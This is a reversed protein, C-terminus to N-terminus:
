ANGNAIKEERLKREDRSESAPDFYANIYKPYERKEGFVTTRIGRRNGKYRGPIVRHVTCRNDWMAVSGVAWKWRVYHDDAAHIHHSLFDLLKDSELKKLEAFGTVFGTNVNLAKLGTVPHTRVAPHHTDIPPRNPGVGWLDLITDYQLRSTHVAHLGDLFKKYADSLADYLGYQSVWATDGGVDPHEEMRLLSYSPPNIEFSTDAHFEGSPWPTYNAIERHDERSGHINVFQIIEDTSFSCGHTSSKQAPHKDLIGYHQFLEVQKETTLDQDRFFVVGRETVLLALEDLQQENLQSLQVNELLTGISETLDVPKAVSFLAKKEPDAFLARDKSPNFPERISDPPAHHKIKPNFNPHLTIPFGSDPSIHKRAELHAMRLDSTSTGAFQKSYPASSIGTPVKYTKKSHTRLM